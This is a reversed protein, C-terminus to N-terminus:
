TGSRSLDTKRNTRTPFPFSIIEPPTERFCIPILLSGTEQLSCTKPSLATHSVQYSKPGNQLDTTSTVALQGSRLMVTQKTHQAAAPRFALSSSPSGPGSWSTPPLSTQGPGSGQTPQRQLPIHTEQDWARRLGEFLERM